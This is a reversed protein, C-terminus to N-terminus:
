NTRVKREVGKCTDSRKKWKFLLHITNQMKEIYRSGISGTNPVGGAM